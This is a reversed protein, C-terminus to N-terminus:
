NDYKILQLFHEIPKKRFGTLREYKEINLDVKIPRREKLEFSNMPCPSIKKRYGLLSNVKEGIEYHTTPPCSAVHIIGRYNNKIIYDVANCLDGIFVPTFKQDSSLKIDDDMHIKGLISSIITGDNVDTGFVRSNRIIAWPFNGNKIMHKEVESKIRGYNNLPNTGAEESYDGKEGDFVYDTSIYIPFIERKFCEDIARRTGELDVRRCREWNVGFEEVKKYSALAFIAYQFEKGSIISDLNSTEIDFFLRGDKRERYYTGTVDEGANKFMRFLHNGIYGSGLILINTMTMSLILMIKLCIPIKNCRNIIM